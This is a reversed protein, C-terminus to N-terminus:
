PATPSSNEESPIYYCSKWILAYREAEAQWREDDWGLEPQAIARIAEMQPLGGQEALLGLRTRRLLLDDLHVVSEERAAWRIEAWLTTVDEFPKLEDPRASELLYMVEDGYRGLLRGLLEDPLNTEPVLEPLRNFSARAFNFHAKGAFCPRVALLAERAMRRFTTLKGGTITVLNSEQLLLHKRSVASPNSADASQVLPRLGAFSSRIDAVGIQLAPFSHEVAALLYSVEDTTISPEAQRAELEAPHDLDTTGIMTMGEWPIAFLTRNDWPHALTFAQRIPFRAWPILIHSGRSKRLCPSGGVHARLEDAWPGTANIVAKAMVECTRGGAGATDRVLVGRVKGTVDKLLNEVRAYNLAAGGYRLGERLIRLVLRSDDTLADYYEYGCLLGDAKLNPEMKLLQETSLKRHMWKPAMLDYITVGMGYVKPPTRDGEHCTIVFKLPEVLKRAERLMRERECVSEYTVDFQKNRLYRFGGHVLKSSRSSTGFAFDSADLLLTRLGAQAAMRLMGAGTIGGGIIVLDWPQALSNWINERWNHSQM